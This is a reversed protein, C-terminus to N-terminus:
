ALMEEVFACFRGALGSRDPKRIMALTRVIPQPGLPRFTVGRERIARAYDPLIACGAGMAVFNIMSLSTQLEIAVNFVAGADLFLDEILQYTEAALSRQAMIMPQASLDHVTLQELATLPHWEPLAVVLPDDALRTVAFDQHRVPLWVFGVDLEDRHLAEIQLPAPMGSFGLSIDPFRTRFAPLVRPFVRYEASPIYGISLRGVRGGAVERAMAISENALGLMQRGREHFLRGADTLRIGRGSRVLLPVGVEEELRAVQISLSPQSVALREAARTFSLEDAVAVFYRLHRLEM